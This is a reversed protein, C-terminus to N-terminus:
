KRTAKWMGLACRLNGKQGITLDMKDFEADTIYSMSDPGSVQHNRLKDILDDTLLTPYLKQFDDLSLMNLPDPLFGITTNTSTAALGPGPPPNIPQLPERLQKLFADLGTFNVEVKPQQAQMRHHRRASLDVLDALEQSMPQFLTPHSPPSDIDVAEENAAKNM